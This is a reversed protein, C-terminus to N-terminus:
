DRSTIKPPYFIENSQASCPDLQKKKLSSLYLIGHIEDFLLLKIYEVASIDDELRTRFVKVLISIAGLLM